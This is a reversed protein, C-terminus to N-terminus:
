NHTGCHYRELVKPHIRLLESHKMERYHIASPKLTHTELERGAAVYAFQVYNKKKFEYTRADSIYECLVALLICREM